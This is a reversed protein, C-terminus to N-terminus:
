SPKTDKYMLRGSGGGLVGFMLMLLLESSLTVLTM